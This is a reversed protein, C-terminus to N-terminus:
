LKSVKLRGTDAAQLFRNTQDILNFDEEGILNNLHLLM